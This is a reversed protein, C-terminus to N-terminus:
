KKRTLPAVIEIKLIKCRQQMHINVMKEIFRKAEWRTNFISHSGMFQVPTWYTNKNFVVGWAYKKTFGKM